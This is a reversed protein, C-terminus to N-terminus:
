AESGLYLPETIFGPDVGSTKVFDRFFRECSQVAWDACRSNLVDWPFTADRHLGLRGRLQRVIQQQESLNSEPDEVYTVVRGPVPHVLLNRLSRVLNASQFPEQREDLEQKGTLRLLTHVLQLTNQRRQPRLEERAMAAVLARQESTLPSKEATANLYIFENLAAELFSYSLTVAGTVFARLAHSEHETTTRASNAMVRASNKLGFAFRYESEVHTVRTTEGDTLVVVSSGSRGVPSKKM